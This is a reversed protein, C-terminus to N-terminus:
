SSESLVLLLDEGGSKFGTVSAQAQRVEALPPLLSGANVRVHEPAYGAAITKNRQEFASTPINLQFAKMPRLLEETNIRETKVNPVEGWRNQWSGQLFTNRYHSIRYTLNFCDFAITQPVLQKANICMLSDNFDLHCYTFLESACCTSHKSMM